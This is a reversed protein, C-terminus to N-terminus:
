CGSIPVSVLRKFLPILDITTGDRPILAMFKDVHYELREINATHVVDFSSRIFSRASAWKQGDAVVIGNGWLNEALHYRLPEIGFNSFYISQYNKVVEPDITHYTNSGFSKTTFTKSTFLAHMAASSELYTGSSLARMRKVFLDIGWVPDYHPYSPPDTCGNQRKRLTHRVHATLKALLLFACIATLARYLMNPFNSVEKLRMKYM